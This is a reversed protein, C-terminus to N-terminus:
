SMIFRTYLALAGNYLAHCALSVRLSGSRRLMYSFVIGILVVELMGIVTYGAHLATWLIVSVAAGGWFGLSSKTLAAQLFGRFLLEESLPAGIAVILLALLWADGKFVSAFQKLDALPDHGLITVAALNVAALTGVILALGLAYDIIGNAPPKLSFAGHWTNGSRKAALLTLATMIAQSTGMLILVSTGDTQSPVQRLLGLVASAGGISAAIIALTVGIAAPGSWGSVPHYAGATAPRAPTEKHPAPAVRGPDENM